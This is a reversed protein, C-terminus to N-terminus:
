SNFGKKKKKKKLLYLPLLFRWILLQFLLANQILFKVLWGSTGPQSESRVNTTEKGNGNTDLHECLVYFTLQSRVERELHSVPSRTDQLLVLGAGRRHQVDTMWLGLVLDQRDSLDGGTFVLHHHQSRQKTRVWFIPLNILSAVNLHQAWLCM